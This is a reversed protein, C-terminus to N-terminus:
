EKKTKGDDTSGGTSATDSTHQASIFVSGIAFYACFFSLSSSWAKNWFPYTSISLIGLVISSYLFVESITNAISGRTIKRLPVIAYTNGLVALLTAAILWKFDPDSTSGIADSPDANWYGAFGMGFPVMAMATFLFFLSPLSVKEKQKNTNHGLHM